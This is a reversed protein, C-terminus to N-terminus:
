RREKENRKVIVPGNKTLEIVDGKFVIERIFIDIEKKKRKPDPTTLRAKAIYVGRKNPGKTCTRVEWQRSLTRM